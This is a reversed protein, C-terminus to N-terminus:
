LVSRDTFIKIVVLNYYKNQLCAVLECLGNTSTGVNYTVVGNVRRNQLDEWDITDVNCLKPINFLLVDGNSIEQLRTFPWDVLEYANGIMLSYNRTETINQIIQQGRILRLQPMPLTTMNGLNGLVLYGTIETINTLVSLASDTLTNTRTTVEM